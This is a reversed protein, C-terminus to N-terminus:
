QQRRLAEVLARAAFANLSVGKRKAAIVVKQHLTPQIRIVFRGSFPKEPDEGRQRCFDIYDDVSDEFAKKVEKVSRGQFTIVDRTNIVEGHIIGADEDVTIAGEYGKYTL